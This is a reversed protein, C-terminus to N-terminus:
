IHWV